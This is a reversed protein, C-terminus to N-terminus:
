WLGKIISLLCHLKSGHSALYHIDELSESRWKGLPNWANSLTSAGLGVLVWWVRVWILCGRLLQILLKSNAGVHSQWLLWYKTSEDTHGQEKFNRTSKRLESQWINKYMARRNHFRGNVDNGGNSLVYKHHFRQSGYQEYGSPLHRDVFLSM